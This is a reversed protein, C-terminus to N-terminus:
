FEAKLKEGNKSVELYPGVKSQLKQKTDGLVKLYQENVHVRDKLAESRAKWRMFEEDQEMTSEKHKEILRENENIQASITYGKKFLQAIQHIRDM